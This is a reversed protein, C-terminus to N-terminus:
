EGCVQEIAKLLIHCSEVMEEDTMTLPPCIRLGNKINIFGITLLGLELAKARIADSTEFDKFLVAYILGTGRLEVIAPHKLERLLIAELEPVRQLLNESQIKRFAALGAACSVPHGGFTTIHGLLPNSQIVRMVEGRTVFAGIPLGGGLAKALLLIDPEFGFHQHAFMKGTRGFGTQIEDLIMLAGVETCRARAAQLYGPTPMVVGGAGQIPEVVFAATHEDIQALAELDNYPIHHVDPLMPGYGVKMSANGSVSMAGHTSGHYANLCSVIRTKGTFKKAVKLAGETAEAGSNGFFVHDLNPGLINALETAYEVQPTLVAEGYVMAHMYRESQTRIAELVEPAKHGVNTVCIGSIFDVWREGNPGYLYVGEARDIEIAMPFESTQAVHQFFLEKIMRAFKPM